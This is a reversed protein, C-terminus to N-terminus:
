QVAAHQHGNEAVWVALHQGAAVDADREYRVVDIARWPQLDVIEVMAERDRTSRRLTFRRGRERRTQVLVVEFQVVQEFALVVPERPPARRAVVSAPM